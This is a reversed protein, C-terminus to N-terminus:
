EIQIESEKRGGLVIKVQKISWMAARTCRYGNLEASKAEFSCVNVEVVAGMEMLPRTAIAENANLGRANAAPVRVNEGAM